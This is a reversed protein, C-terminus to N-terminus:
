PADAPILPPTPEETMPEAGDPLPPGPSPAPPVGLGDREEPESESATTSAIECGVIREMSALSRGLDAELRAIQIEFALLQTYNDIVQLIDGRGTPYDNISVDLAQETNPLLRERYLTLQQEAADATAAFRRIQRFTDDREADYRRASEVVRHEAERVGARLRDRYIPLNIGLRLGFNDNGDAVPSLSKTDTMADWDFGADLDPVYALRALETKRQDRVIQHLRERLEPRCRASLEYLRDLTKPVTPLELASAALPRIDPSAHLLAALDAQTQSLRQEYDIIQNDLRDREVQVRIVDQQSGGTRYRVEAFDVLRDLLDANDRTVAIAREYFYLDYYALQVQEITSLEAQALRALAMKAEQEAVEGRVRLKDPWPVQQSLSLSNVMRGSATQPSHSPSTWFKEGLLPDSLATAQPITEVVASVDRRAALVTPNRDLAVQLYFARDHPGSLDDEVPLTAPAVVETHASALVIDRTVAAYGQEASPTSRCGVIIIAAAAVTLACIIRM